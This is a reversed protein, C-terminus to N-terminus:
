RQGNVCNWDRRVVSVRQVVVTVVGRVFPRGPPIRATVKLTRDWRVPGLRPDWELSGTEETERRVPVAISDQVITTSDSTSRRIWHHLAGSGLTSDPLLPLFDGLVGHLEAIEAVEDPIFPIMHSTYRGKPALLGRWRGGLLGETDPTFRGEPGERWVSLSDYWATVELGSDTEAARLVLIGDRGAREERVATGVTSRIETRVEELYSACDLQAATYRAPAPQLPVVPLIALALSLRTLSSM